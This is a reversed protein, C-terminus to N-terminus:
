RKRPNPPTQGGSSDPRGERAWRHRDNNPNLQNARNDRAAKSAGSEGGQRQGPRSKPKNKMFPNEQTSLPEVAVM